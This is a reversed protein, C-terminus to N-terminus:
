AIVEAPHIKLIRAIPIIASLWLTFLLLVLTGCLFFPTINVSIFGSVLHSFVMILAFGICLSVFLIEAMEAIVSCILHRNSWGFAKRIACDKRMTVIWYDTVVFCNAISFIYISLALSVGMNQMTLLIPADSDTEALSILISNVMSIGLLVSMMSIAFGVVLFITTPKFKRKLKQFM